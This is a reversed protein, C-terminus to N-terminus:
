ASPDATVVNFKEASWSEWYDLLGKPFMEGEEAPGFLKQLNKIHAKLSEMDRWQEYLFFDCPDDIKQHYTFSICGFEGASIENMKAAQKYFEEEKGKKVRARFLINIQDM